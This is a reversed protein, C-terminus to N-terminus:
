VRATDPEPEPDPDPEPEADGAAPIGTFVLRRYFFYRFATGLGLGVANASINDALPSTLGLLYHSFALCGVGIVLGGVNVVVFGALERGRGLYEQGQKLLDSSTEKARDVIQNVDGAKVIESITGKLPTEGKDDNQNNDNKLM